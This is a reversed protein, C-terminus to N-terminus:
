QTSRGVDTLTMVIVTMMMMMMMMMRTMVHFCNQRFSSSSPPIRGDVEVNLATLLHSSAAGTAAETM